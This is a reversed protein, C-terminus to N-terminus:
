LHPLIHTRKASVIEGQEREVEMVSGAYLSEVGEQPLEQIMLEGGWEVNWEHHAYYIFSGAYHEPNDTHWSLGSGQPYLFTTAKFSQWNSEDVFPVQELSQLVAQIPLDIPTHTPFHTSDSPHAGDRRVSVPSAARPMGDHLRWDKHWGKLHLLQYDTMQVYTWLAERDSSDLVDDFIVIDDRHLFPTM